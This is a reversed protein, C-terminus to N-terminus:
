VLAGNEMLLSPIKKHDQIIERSECNQLILLDKLSKHLPMVVGLHIWEWSHRLAEM